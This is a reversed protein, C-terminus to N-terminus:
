TLDGKQQAAHDRRIRELTERELRSLEILLQEAIYDPAQYM